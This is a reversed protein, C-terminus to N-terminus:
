VRVARSVLRNRQPKEHPISAASKLVRHLSVDERASGADLRHSDHLCCAWIRVPLVQTGEIGLAGRPRPLTRTLVLFLRCQLELVEHLLWATTVSIMRGRGCRHRCACALRGRVGWGRSRNGFRLEMPSLMPPQLSPGCDTSRDRVPM